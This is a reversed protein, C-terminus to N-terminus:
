GTSGHRKAEENPPLKPWWEAREFEDIMEQPLCDDDESWEEWHGYSGKFPGHPIIGWPM